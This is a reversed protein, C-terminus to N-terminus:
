PREKSTSPSIQSSYGRQSSPDLARLRARETRPRPRLPPYPPPHPPPSCTFGFYLLTWRGHFDASRAVRNHHDTLEWAGGLQPRGIAEEERVM